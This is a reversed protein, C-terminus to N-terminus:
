RRVGDGPFTIELRVWCSIEPLEFKGLEQRAFLEPATDAFNLALPVGKGEFESQCTL